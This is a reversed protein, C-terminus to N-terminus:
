GRADFRQLKSARYANNSNESHAVSRCVSLVDYFANHRKLKKDSGM